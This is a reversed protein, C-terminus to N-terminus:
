GVSTLVGGLVLDSLFGTERPVAVTWEQQLQELLFLVRAAWGGSCFGFRLLRLLRRGLGWECVVTRCRTLIGFSFFDFLVDNLVM